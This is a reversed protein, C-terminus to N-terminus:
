KVKFDNKNENIKWNKCSYKLAANALCRYVHHAHASLPRTPSHPRNIPPTKLRQSQKRSVYFAAVVRAVYNKNPPVCIWQARRCRSRSRRCCCLKESQLM